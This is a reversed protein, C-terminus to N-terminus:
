ESKKKNYYSININGKVINKYIFNLLYVIIFLIALVFILIDIMFYQYWTLDLVAPRLHSAGKHRLVYEVWWVATDVPSMPKDKTISSLRMMGEKYSQNTLLVKLKEYVNEFTIDDFELSLGAGSEVIKRAHFDQDAFMPIALIPIGYFTAEQFSQIGVQSVFLRLKPHALISQQPLWKRCLVNEPKGPLEIDAEWKWLVRKNPFKKFAEIFAARKEEPVSTGKMNSGLSFYIVGDEAEDMWQQLDLPLPKPKVIHMPGVYITNPQVPRPYSSALDASIILLSKNYELEEATHKVNNFYKRLYSEQLPKLSYEMIYQSYINLYLNYIREWFTMKDCSSSFTFPVYSPFVPNGQPLENTMFPHLTLLGVVPPDGTIEKFGLLSSYYLSEYLILDIKTGNLERMLEQVDPSGLVLSTFFNFFNYGDAILKSPTIRVQLSMQNMAQVRQWEKYGYSIDIDRHNKMPEKSPNATIVTLNHGKKALAHSLALMPQQHSYSPTPFIGLINAASCCTIYSLVGIVTLSNMKSSFEKIM